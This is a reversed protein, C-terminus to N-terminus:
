LAKVTHRLVQRLYIAGPDSVEGGSLATIFSADVREPHRPMIAFIENEIYRMDPGITAPNPSTKYHVPQSANQDPGLPIALM